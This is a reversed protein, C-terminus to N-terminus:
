TGDTFDFPLYPAFKSRGGANVGRLRVVRGHEDRLLVGDPHLRGTTLVPATLECTSPAQGCAPLLLFPAARALDTWAMAPAYVQFLPCTLSDCAARSVAGAIPSITRM